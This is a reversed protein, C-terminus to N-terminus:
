RPRRRARGRRVVDHVAHALLDRRLHALRFSLEEAHADAHDPRCPSVRPEGEVGLAPLILNAGGREVDPASGGPHLLHEQAGARLAVHLREARSLIRDAREESRQVGHSLVVGLEPLQHLLQGLEPALQRWSSRSPGSAARMPSAAPTRAKSSSMSPRRSGISLSSPLSAHPQNAELQRRETGEGIAAEVKRAASGAAQVDHVALVSGALARRESRDGIEQEPDGDFRAVIVDVRVLLEAHPRRERVAAALLEHNLAQLAVFVREAVRVVRREVLEHELAQESVDVALHELTHEPEIVLAQALRPM